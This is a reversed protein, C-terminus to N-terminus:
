IAHHDRKAAHTSRAAEITQMRLRVVPSLEGSVSISWPPIEAVRHCAVERGDPLAALSPREERCRAAAHSCRPHFGCGSLPNLPSPVDGRPVERPANKTVEPRPVASLLAQTYPHRPAGIVAQKSGIEVIEGIEGLYMVAVRDAIHRVVALDHNTKV